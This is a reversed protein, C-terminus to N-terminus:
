KRRMLAAHARFIPRIISVHPRAAAGPSSSASQLDFSGVAVQGDDITTSDVDIFIITSSDVVYYELNLTGIGYALNPVTISGRGDAPSDPTYTGSLNEPPNPAGLDNEDLVGPAMNPTSTPSDATFEAIDDVETGSFGSTGTLNLGYGESAAFSTATQAYAAGQMLGFSDVELLLVGNSGDASFPYAAFQFAQSSGNSFATLALQCRGALFTTCTGTFNPVSAVNGADNYDEIGSTLGSGNSSTLGGAAIAAGTSDSGSLTFALTGSPISTQQTFADGALVAGSDIEILKMHTADIVWVDFTLTGFLSSTSLVATGATSSSLVLSGGLALNSLGASSGGENYDQTGGTITGSGAPDLSFGGVSGVLFSGTADTGTLSFALSTLASQSASGQLDLTGSGSGGSDFRTILGQGNSNLVFDLAFSGEPTVLTGTARGDKGVTYTSASVNQATFVGGIDPDNIDVTGGTINGNGDASITGVIAFFSETEEEANADAGLISIVYTGKFNANAFGGTPPAVGAPSSNGCAVLLSLTSLALLLVIANRVSM